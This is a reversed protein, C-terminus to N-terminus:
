LTRGCTKRRFTRKKGIALDRLYPTFAGKEYTKVLLHLDGDSAAESLHLRANDLNLDPFVPTYSRELVIDEEVEARLVVHHGCLVRFHLAQYNFFGASSM